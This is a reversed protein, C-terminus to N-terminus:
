PPAAGVDPLPPSDQKGRSASQGTKPVDELELSWPIDELPPEPPPPPNWKMSLMIAETLASDADAGDFESEATVRWRTEGWRTWAVFQVRHVCDGKCLNRSMVGEVTELEILKRWLTSKAGRLARIEADILDRTGTGSTIVELKWNVVAPKKGYGPGQCALRVDASRCSWGTPLQVWFKRKSIGATETLSPRAAEVTRPGREEVQCGACGLAALLGLWWRM